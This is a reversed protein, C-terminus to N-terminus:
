VTRSQFFGYKKILVRIRDSLYHIHLRAPLTKLLSDSFTYLRYPLWYNLVRSNYFLGAACAATNEDGLMAPQRYASPTVYVGVTISLLHCTLRVQTRTRRVKVAGQNSLFRCKYACRSRHPQQHRHYAKCLRLINLNPQLRHIAGSAPVLVTKQHPLYLRPSFRCVSLAPVM